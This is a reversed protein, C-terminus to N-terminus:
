YFGMTKQRSIDDEIKNLLHSNLQERLSIEDLLAKVNAKLTKTKDFFLNELHSKEKGSNENFVINELPLSSKLHLFPKNKSVKTQCLM